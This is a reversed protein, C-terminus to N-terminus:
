LAKGFDPETEICQKTAYMFHSYAQEIPNRLIVVMKAHPATEKINAPARESFLYLPSAEGLKAHAPAPNFLAKYATLDTVSNNIYDAGPGKCDLVDNQFAFFNPEKRAPMFIDPHQRLYSHLATTGARAAGILLFDPLRDTM